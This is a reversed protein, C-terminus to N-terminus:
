MRVVPNIIIVCFVHPMIIIYSCLPYMSSVSGITLYNIAESFKSCVVTMFSIYVVVTIVNVLYLSCQKLKTTFNRGLLTKKYIKKM